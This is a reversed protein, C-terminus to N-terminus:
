LSVPAFDMAKQFEAQIDTLCYFRAKFRHTDTSEGCIININGHKATEERLQLQSCAYKHDITLFYAQQNSGTNTPHQSKSDILM